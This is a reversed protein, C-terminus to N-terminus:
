EGQMLSRVKAIQLELLKRMLHLPKQGRGRISFAIAYAFSMQPDAANKFKDPISLGAKAIWRYIAPPPPIHTHAPYIAGMAPLVGFERFKLFDAQHSFGIRATIGHQGFSIDTVIGGLSGGSGTSALSYKVYLKRLEQQLLLMTKEVRKKAELDIRGKLADFVQTLQQTTDVTVFIATLDSFFL